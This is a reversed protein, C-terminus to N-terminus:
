LYRHKNYEESTKLLITNGEFMSKNFAGSIATMTCSESKGLFTEM